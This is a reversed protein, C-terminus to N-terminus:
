RLRRRYEDLEKLNGLVYHDPEIEVWMPRHISYEHKAVDYVELKKHRVLIPDPVPIASLLARTYPHLPNEFLKETDSLEVLVGKHIVAIHDTFYKMISLDHAIFIYTLGQKRQIESLLNLVQARISVDLSSIPEDAIILDPDMILARAIGIRQRQGQKKEGFAVRLNKIEPLIEKSIEKKM